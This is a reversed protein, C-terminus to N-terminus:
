AGGLQGAENGFAGAPDDAQGGVLHRAVHELDDREGGDLAPDADPGHEDLGRGARRALEAAALDPEGGGVVVDVREPEGLAAPEPHGRQPGAAAGSGPLLVGLERAGAVVADRQVALDVERQLNLSISRAAMSIVVEAPRSSVRRGASWPPVM